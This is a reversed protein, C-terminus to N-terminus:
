MVLDLGNWCCDVRPICLKYLLHFSRHWLFLSIIFLSQSNKEDLGDKVLVSQRFSLQGRCKGLTIWTQSHCSTFCTESLSLSQNHASLSVWPYPSHPSNQLYFLIILNSSLWFILKFTKVRNLLSSMLHIEAASRLVVDKVPTMWNSYSYKRHDTFLFYKCLIFVNFFMWHKKFRLGKGVIATKNNKERRCFVNYTCICDNQRWRCTRRM